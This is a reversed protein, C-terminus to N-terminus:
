QGDTNVKKIAKVSDVIFWAVWSGDLQQQIDFYKFSTGAGANNAIMLSVLSQKDKAQLFYPVGM